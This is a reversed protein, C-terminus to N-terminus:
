LWALKISFFYKLHKGFVALKNSFKTFLIKLTESQSLVFLYEDIEEM